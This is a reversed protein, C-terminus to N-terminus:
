AEAPKPKKEPNVWDAPPWGPLLGRRKTERQAIVIQGLQDDADSSTALWAIAAGIVPPTAVAFHEAFQGGKGRAEAAETVVYGPDVSFARIGQDGHEIQLLPAVRAFAAKSMAYAMGWGGAGIKGPPDRYATASIMNVITGGGRELMQPLVERILVLQGFVNGEFIKHLDAFDLELFDVMTGPGQYIGNNVLVDIGGFHAITAAVGDVLSQHDLVDMRVAFGLAGEAEIAAVTTDLGGPLALGDTDHRGEGEHLTRASVAVDYGARALDIAAAKGIGRSAGTVLAVPRDGAARKQTAASQAM